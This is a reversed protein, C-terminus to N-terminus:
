KQMSPPTTGISVQRVQNDSNRATAAIRYGEGAVLGTALVKDFVCRGGKLWEGWVRQEAFLSWGETTGGIGVSNVVSSGATTATWSSGTTFPIDSWVYFLGAINSAECEASDTIAEDAWRIRLEGVGAYEQALNWLDVVYGRYCNNYGASTVWPPDIKGEFEVDADAAACSTPSFAAQISEVSYANSRDNTSCGFLALALVAAATIRQQGPVHLREHTALNLQTLSRTFTHNGM